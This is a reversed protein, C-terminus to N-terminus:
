VAVEGAHKMFDELRAAYDELEAALLPAMGRVYHEAIDRLTAVYPNPRPAGCKVCPGPSTFSWPKECSWSHGCPEAM